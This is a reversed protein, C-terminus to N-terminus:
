RKQSFTIYKRHRRDRIEYKEVLSEQSDQIYDKNNSIEYRCILVLILPLKFAQQTILSPNFFITSGIGSKM